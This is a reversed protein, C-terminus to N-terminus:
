LDFIHLALKGTPVATPSFTLSLLPARFPCKPVPSCLATGLTPSWCTPLSSYYPFIYDDALVIPIRNIVTSSGYTTDPPLYIGLTDGAMVDIPADALNINFTYDRSMNFYFPATASDSGSAILEPSFTAKRNINTPIYRTLNRRWLNLNLSLTRNYLRMDIAQREFYAIGRVGQIRGNCEFEVTPFVYVGPRIWFSSAIDPANVNEFLGTM